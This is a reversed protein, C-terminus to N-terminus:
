LDAVIMIVNLSWIETEYPNFPPLPPDTTEYLLIPSAYM